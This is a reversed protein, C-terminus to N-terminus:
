RPRSAEPSDRGVRTTLALGARRDLPTAAPLCLARRSTLQREAGRTQRTPASRPFLPALVCSSGLPSSLLHLRAPACQGRRWRQLAGSVFRPRSGRRLKARNAHMWRDTSSPSLLTQSKALSVGNSSTGDECTKPCSLVLSRTMANNREKEHSLGAASSRITEAHHTRAWRRDQATHQETRAQPRGSHGADCAPM